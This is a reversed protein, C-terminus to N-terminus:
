PVAIVAQYFKQSANTGDTISVPTPAAPYRPRTEPRDLFHWSVPPNLNSATILFVYRNAPQTFQLTAVGNTDSIALIVPPNTNSWGNALDNTIWRSLLAIAQTDLLSSALPPMQNAGRVSIRSHIM